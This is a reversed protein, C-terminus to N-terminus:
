HGTAIDPKVESPKDQKKVSAQSQSHLSKTDDGGIPPLVKGKGGRLEAPLKGTLKDLLFKSRALELNKQSLSVGGEFGAYVLSPPGAMIKQPDMIGVTTRLKEDVRSQYDSDLPQVQAVKRTNLLQSTMRPQTSVGMSGQLKRGAQSPQVYAPTPVVIQQSRYYDATGEGQYKAEQIAAEKYSENLNSIINTNLEQIKKKLPSLSQIRFFSTLCMYFIQLEYKLGEERMFTESPTADM